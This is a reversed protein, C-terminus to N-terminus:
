LCTRVDSNIGAIFSSIEFNSKVPVEKDMGLDSIVCRAAVSDDTRQAIEEAVEVWAGEEWHDVLEM